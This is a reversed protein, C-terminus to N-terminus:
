SVKANTLAKLIKELLEVIDALKKRVDRIQVTDDKEDRM